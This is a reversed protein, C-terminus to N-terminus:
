YTSARNVAQVKLYSNRILAPATPTFYWAKKGARYAAVSSADKNVTGSNGSTAQLVHAYSASMDSGATNRYQDIGTVAWGKGDLDNLNSFTSANAIVWWAVAVNNDNAITIASGTGMPNGSSGAVANSGTEINWTGAGSSPRFVHMVVTSPQTGTESAILISPNASWTGNFQCWFVRSSVDDGAGGSTASLSNWTQGGTASISPDTSFGVVQVHAFILVLDGSVMSAPPTIALTANDGQSGNDSPNSASGFYTPAPM